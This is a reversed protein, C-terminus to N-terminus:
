TAVLRFREAFELRPLDDLNVAKLSRPVWRGVVAPGGGRFRKTCVNVFRKRPLARRQYHSAATLAATADERPM